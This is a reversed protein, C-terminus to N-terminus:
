LIDLGFFDCPALSGPFLFRRKRSPSLQLHHQQLAQYRHREVLVRSVGSRLQQHLALDEMRKKHRGKPVKLWRQLGFSPDVVLRRDLRLNSHACSTEPVIACGHCVSSNLGLAGLGHSEWCIPDQPCWSNRAIMRAILEHMLNERAMRVLGGLSGESDGDATYVLIGARLGEEDVFIRERLSPLSYGSFFALEKILLHSFTHALPFSSATLMKLDLRQSTLLDDALAAGRGEHRLRSQKANVVDYVMSPNLEVFIGEGFVEHAPLWTVAGEAIGRRQGHQDCDQANGCPHKSSSTKVAHVRTYGLPVRIERFRGVASLKSVAAGSAMSCPEIALMDRQVRGGSLVNWEDMRSQFDEEALYSSPVKSTEALADRRLAGNNLSEGLLWGALMAIDPKAITWRIRISLSQAFKEALRKREEPEHQRLVQARLLDAQADAEIDALWGISPLELSQNGPDAAEPRDIDLFSAGSVQIIQTSSRMIPWACHPACRAPDTDAGWPDLSRCRRAGAQEGRLSSLDSAAGCELCGIVGNTYMNRGTPPAEEQNLHLIPSGRLGAKTCMRSWKARTTLYLSQDSSCNARDGGSTGIGDKHALSTWWVDDAHGRHCVMIWRAGFLQAGKRGKAQCPRCLRDEVERGRVYLRDCAMCVLARPFRVAQPVMGDTWRNPEYEYSFRRLEAKGLLELVRAPAPFALDVGKQTWWDIPAVVFALSGEETIAGVGERGILASSKVEGSLGTWKVPPM